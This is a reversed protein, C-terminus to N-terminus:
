IRKGKKRKSESLNEAVVTMENIKKERNQKILEPVYTGSLPRIRAELGHQLPYQDIFHLDNDAYKRASAIPDLWLEHPLEVVVVNEPEETITNPIEVVEKKSHDYFFAYKEAPTVDLETLDIRKWHEDTSRLESLRVDVFYNQGMINIMPLEGHELRNKLLFPDCRLESDLAPLQEKLLGYKIAVGEPDLKVMQDLSTKNSEEIDNWNLNKSQTDFSFSYKGDEMQLDNFSISNEPNAKERLEAFAVDVIFIHGEITIEPLVRRQHIFPFEM